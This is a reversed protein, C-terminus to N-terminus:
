MLPVLAKEAVIYSQSGYMKTKGPAFRRLMPFNTMEPSRLLSWGLIIVDFDNPVNSLCRKMYNMAGSRPYADDEYILINPFKMALATKILSIHSLACKYPGKLSKNRFGRFM